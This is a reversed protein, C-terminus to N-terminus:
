AIMAICQHASALLRGDNSWLFNSESGFGGGIFIALICEGCKAIESLISKTLAKFALSIDSTSLDSCLKAIIKGLPNLHDAAKFGNGRTFM